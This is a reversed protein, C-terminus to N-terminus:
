ACSNEGKLLHPASCSTRVVLSAPLFIHRFSRASVSGPSSQRLLILEGARRGIEFFPQHVTTLMGARPSYSEVDDFGVVSLDEPVKIGRTQAEHILEFAAFDHLAALATPPDSLARYHDLALGAHPWGSTVLEPDFRIGHTELADRYGGLREEVSTVREVRLVYGIRRHGLKILHEVVAKSANRNDTGVFDSDIDHSYRDIMVVSVGKEQIARVIPATVSGGAHILILGAAGEREIRQLYKTEWAYAGDEGDSPIPAADTDCIVLQHSSEKERLATNIGRVISYGYALEPAHPMIAVITRSTLENPEYVPPGERPSVRSRHGPGQQLVLGEERLYKFAVQVVPRSVKLEIAIDRETPLWEGPAYYGKEIRDRVIKVIQMFAPLRRSEKAPSTEM